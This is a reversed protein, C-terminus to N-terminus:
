DIQRMLESRFGFSSTSQQSSDSLNYESDTDGPFGYGDVDEMDSIDCKSQIM